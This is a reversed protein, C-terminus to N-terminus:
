SALESVVIHHFVCKLLVRNFSLLIKLSFYNLFLSMTYGSRGKHIYISREEFLIKEGKHKLIIEM